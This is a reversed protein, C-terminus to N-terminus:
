RGHRWRPPDSWRGLDTRSLSKAQIWRSVVQGSVSDPSRCMPPDILQPSLVEADDPRAPGFTQSEGRNDTGDKL